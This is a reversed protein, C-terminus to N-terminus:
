SNVKEDKTEGKETEKVEEKPAEKLGLVVDYDDNLLDVTKVVDNRFLVDFSYNGNFKVIIGDILGKTGLNLAETANFYSDQNMIKLTEKRTLGIMESYGNVVEERMREFDKFNNAASKFDGWIDAAADHIMFRACPECLRLKQKGIIYTAASANLGAAIVASQEPWMDIMKCFSMMSQVCGGPSMIMILPRQFYDLSRNPKLNNLLGSVRGNNIPGFIDIMLMEKQVPKVEEKQEPEKTEVEGKKGKKPEKDEKTEKKGWYQPEQFDLVSM